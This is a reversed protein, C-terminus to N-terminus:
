FEEPLEYTLLEAINVSKGTGTPGPTLVHKNNMVLTKIFYKMRISDVTPVLIENYSAKIDVSYENVTDRWYQWEKTEVNFKYDYILKEAPFDINLKALVNERAWKDFKIRGDLNTTVGVAWILGFFFLQNIMMDLNNLEEKSIKKIENEVYPSFYCDIVRFISQCVNNDITKVPELLNKRM